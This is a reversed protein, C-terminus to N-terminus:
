GSVACDTGYRLMSKRITSRALSSLFRDDRDDSAAMRPWTSNALSAIANVATSTTSLPVATMSVTGAALPLAALRLIVFALLAGSEASSGLRAGVGM